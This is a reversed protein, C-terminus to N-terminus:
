ASLVAQWLQPLAIGANQRLHCHAERSVESLNPNIDIIYAGHQKAYLAFYVPTTVVGSTGVVLVVDTKPLFSNIQDLHEPDYMEGFWLIHPRAFAGCKPCAIMAEEPWTFHPNNFVTQCTACRAQNINGHIEVVKRNGARIHLNDINQTVLLFEPYHREMAAIVDHAPNPKADAYEVRRRLYWEWVMKPNRWFGEPTAVDEINANSWTGDAGRFTPIGSEASVGAGTIVAVAHADRLKHIATKETDQTMTMQIPASNHHRCPYTTYLINSVAM